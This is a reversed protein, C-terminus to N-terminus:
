KHLGFKELKQQPFQGSIRVTYDRPPWQVQPIIAELEVLLSRVENVTCNKWQEGHKESTFGMYPPNLNVVLKGEIM